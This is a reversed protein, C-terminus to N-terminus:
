QPLTDKCIVIQTSEETVKLSRGNETNWFFPHLQAAETFGSRTARKSDRYRWYIRAPEGAKRVCADVASSADVPHDFAQPSYSCDMKAVGEMGFRFATNVAVEASGSAVVKWELYNTSSPSCSATSIKVTGAERASFLAVTGESPATSVIRSINEAFLWLLGLTSLGAALYAIARNTPTGAKSPPGPGPHLSPCTGGATAAPKMLQLYGGSPEMKAARRVRVGKTNPKKRELLKSFALRWNVLQGKAGLQSARAAEVLAASVIQALRDADHRFRKDSLEFANLRALPRISEPLDAAQPMGAGGVLIPLVRRKKLLAREIELRHFDSAIELRRRGDEAAATLWRPGILVLVLACDALTEDITQIFDAGYPINDIDLFVHSQGVQPVLVDYLRGTHGASDDRRYSLFISQPVTKQWLHNLV